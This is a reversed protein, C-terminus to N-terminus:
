RRGFQPRTGQAIAAPRTHRQAPASQPQQKQALHRAIITDAHQAGLRAATAAAETVSSAQIRAYTLTALLDAWDEKPIDLHDMSVSYTRGGFLGGARKIRLTTASSVPIFGLIYSTFKDAEVSRVDSWNLSARSFATNLELKQEEFRLAPGVSFLRLTIVAIGTLIAAVWWAALAWGMVALGCFIVANRLQVAKNYNIERM